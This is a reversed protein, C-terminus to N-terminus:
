FSNSFLRGPGKGITPLGALTLMHWYLAQNSSVVPKGTRQEAEDIISFSNLNTCSVFLGDVDNQKSLDILAKLISRDSIRAVIAEQEESFSGFASIELGSQELLTRMADSVEEIYPTIFGIRKIRLAKCAALVARMPDTVQATPHINQVLTKVTKSGIYTAGSTCAYAIVDFQASKPLLAAAAPLDAKMQMLTEPTLDAGSPIRSHLLGVADNDLVSRIENEITEDAQLVILGLATKRDARDDIDYPLKM